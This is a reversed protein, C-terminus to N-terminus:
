LVTVGCLVRLCRTMGTVESTGELEKKEYSFAEM